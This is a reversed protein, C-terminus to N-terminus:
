YCDALPDVDSQQQEAKVSEQLSSEPSDLAANLSKQAFVKGYVGRGYIHDYQQKAVSDLVFDPSAAQRKGEMDAYSAFQDVLISLASV